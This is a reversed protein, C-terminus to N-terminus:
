ARSRMNPLYRKIHETTERIEDEELGAGFRYTAGRAEFAMQGNMPVRGRLLQLLPRLSSPGGDARLDEVDLTNSSQRRYRFGGLEKAVVFRGASVEVVGRGFASWLLASLGAVGCVALAALTLSPRILSAVDGAATVQKISGYTGYVWFAACILAWLLSWRGAKRKPGISLDLGGATASIDTRRNSSNKM